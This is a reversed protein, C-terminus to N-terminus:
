TIRGRLRKELRSLNRIATNPPCTTSHGPMAVAAPRAGLASGVPPATCAPEAPMLLTPASMVTVWCDLLTMM